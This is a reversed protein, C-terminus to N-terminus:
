QGVFMWRHGEVDENRFLRGGPGGEITAAAADEYALMPVVTQAM